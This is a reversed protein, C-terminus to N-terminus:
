FNLAPASCDNRQRMIMHSPVAVLLELVSGALLVNFMRRIGKEYGRANFYRYFLMAWVCWILLVVLLMYRGSGTGNGKDFIADGWIGTTVSLSISLALLVFLLLGVAIPIVMHRQAMPYHTMKDVRVSLLMLAGCVVVLMSPLSLLVLVLENKELALNVFLFFVPAQCLVALIYFVVVRVPWKKM